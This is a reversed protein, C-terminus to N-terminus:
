LSEKNLNIKWYEYEANTDFKLYEKMIFTKNIDQKNFAYNWGDLRNDFVHKILLIKEHIVTGDLNCKNVIPVAVAIGIVENGFTDVAVHTGYHGRDKIYALYARNLDKIEVYKKNENGLASILPVAAAILCTTKLFSRRDNM